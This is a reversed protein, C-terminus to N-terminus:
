DEEKFYERFYQLVKSKIKDITELEEESLPKNVLEQWEQHFEEVLKAIAEGQKTIALVYGRRDEPDVTKIIYGQEVLRNITRTAHSKHFPSEQILRSLKLNKFKAIMVLYFGDPKQLGCAAYKKELFRHRYRAIQHDYESPM